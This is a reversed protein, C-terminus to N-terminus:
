MKIRTTGPISGPGGSRYGLVRVVLGCLRDIILLFEIFQFGSRTTPMVVRLKYKLKICKAKHGSGMLILRFTHFRCVTQLAGQFPDARCYPRLRCLAVYVCFFPPCVVMGRTPNSGLTEYPSSMENIKGCFWQSRCKMQSCLLNQNDM